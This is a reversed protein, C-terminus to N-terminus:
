PSSRPRGVTVDRRREQVPESSENRAATSASWAWPTPTLAQTTRVWLLTRPTACGVKDHRVAEPVAVVVGEARRVFLDALIGGQQGCFGYTDQRELTDRQLGAPLQADHHQGARSTRRPRYARPRASGRSISSRRRGAPSSCGRGEVGSGDHPGQPLGVFGGHALFAGVGGRGVHEPGCNALWSSAHRCVWVSLRRFSTRPAIPSILGDRSTLRCARAPGMPWLRTM